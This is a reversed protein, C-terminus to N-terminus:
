NSWFYYRKIRFSTFLRHLQDFSKLEGEVLHGGRIAERHGESLNDFVIPHYGAEVLEKVLHSGIYGAGGTVLLAM